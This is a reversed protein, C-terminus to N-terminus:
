SSRKLNRFAVGTAREKTIDTSNSYLGLWWRGSKSTWDVKASPDVTAVGHLITAYGFSLDGVEIFSEVDIQNGESDLVYFGGEQYDIGKKSMFASIFFRQNQYPDSHTESRGIGPLYRAVQFRDVTGDKPTNLEYANEELGGLLKLVRWRANIEPIVGLPDGNWHFWYYSHRVSEFVYKKAIEEDQMRHFDPCGEIMKHFESPTKTWIDYVGELLNNLFIKSFANKLIFIDGSYIADVMKEAFSNDGDRVQRAFEAYDIQVIKNAHHPRPFKGEKLEWMQRYISTM